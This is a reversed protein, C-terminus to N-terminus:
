KEYIVLLNLSGFASARDGPKMALIDTHYGPSLYPTHEKITRLMQYDEGKLKVFTYPPSFVKQIAKTMPGNFLGGECFRVKAHRVDPVVYFNGYSAWPLHPSGEYQSKLLHLIRELRGQNTAFDRNFLDILYIVEDVDMGDRVYSELFQKM